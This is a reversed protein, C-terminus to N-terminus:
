ETGSYSQEEALASNSNEKKKKKKELNIGDLRKTWKANM